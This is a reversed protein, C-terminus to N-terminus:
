GEYEAGTKRWGGVYEYTQFLEDLGTHPNNWKFNELPVGPNLLDREDIPAENFIAPGVLYENEGALQEIRSALNAARSVATLRNMEQSTTRVGIKQLFTQGYTAGASISIPQLEREVLHPNIVKDLAWRVTSLYDFLDTIAESAAKGFGFYALLGDGTNKEFYGDYRRVLEMAEPIFVGLMYLVEEASSELLYESFDNIDLFVIALEYEKPENLRQNEKNPLTRGRSINELRENVKASRRNIREALKRKESRTFTSRTM